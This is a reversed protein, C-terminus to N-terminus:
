RRARTGPPRCTRARRLVRGVQRRLPDAVLAVDDVKLGLNREGAHRAGDGIGGDRRAGHHRLDVRQFRLAAFNGVRAELHLLIQRLDLDVLRLDLRMVLGVLGIEARRLAHPDFVHHEGGFRERALLRRGFALQAGGVFAAGALEAHFLLAAGAVDQHLRFVFGVFQHGFQFLIGAPERIQRFLIRLVRARRLLAAVEAPEAAAHHHLRELIRGELEALVLHLHHLAFEAEM